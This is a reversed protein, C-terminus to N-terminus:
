IKERRWFSRPFQAELGTKSTEFDPKSSTEIYM